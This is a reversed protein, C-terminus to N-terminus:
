GDTPEKTLNTAATGLAATTLVAAATTVAVGYDPSSVAIVPAAVAGLIGALYLALRIRPHTTLM